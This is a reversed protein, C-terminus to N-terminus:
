KKRNEFLYPKWSELNSTIIRAINEVSNNNTDVRLIHLNYKNRSLSTIIREYISYYDMLSKEAGELPAGKLRHEQKRNNIRKLLTSNSASLWIIMDLTVSWQNYIKSWWEEISPNQLYQSNWMQLYAMLSISGQDIIMVKDTNEAKKRLLESWGNLLAMFALEQKKIRKLHKISTSFFPPILPLINRLYFPADALNRVNPPYEQIIWPINTKLYRTTTSKGVGALGVLEIILGRNSEENSMIPTDM